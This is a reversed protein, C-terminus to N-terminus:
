EDQGQHQESGPLSPRFLVGEPLAKFAEEPYTVSEFYLGHAPALEYSAPLTGRLLGEFAQHTLQGTSVSVAAGVMCRVQHYLFSRARFRIEVTATGMRPAALGGERVLVEVFEVTRTTCVDDHERGSLLVFDHTGQFRRIATTLLITDVDADIAWARSAHFPMNREEATTGLVMVYVYQRTSASVRAHFSSPTPRVVSILRIKHQSNEDVYRLATTLANFLLDPELAGDKSRKSMKPIDIHVGM